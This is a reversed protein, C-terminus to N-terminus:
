WDRNTLERRLDKLLSADDAPISANTSKRQFIERREGNEDIWTASTIRCHGLGLPKGGGLRWDVSCAAVLLALERATLARCAIRLRGTLNAPLLDCTKNTKQGAPKPLGQEDYVGQVSYNWPAVDGSEGSTRYVKYGRLGTNEDNAVLDPDTQERYFAACGPHPPALPALTTARVKAKADRFVLNQPRVRAAFPGAPGLKRERWGPEISDALDPNPIQGFLDTVSDVKGDPNACDPLIQPHKDKVLDLLRIGRRGWRAWQISAVDSGQRPRGAGPNALELWVLDGKKLESHESHRHRGRYEVWLQAPLTIPDGETRLLGEKKGDPKIPRGSLRVRYRHEDDSEDVVSTGDGNAWLRQTAKGQRPRPLERGLADELTRATVLRTEGTLVKGARGPGGPEVVEALAPLTARVNGQTATPGLPLDRGQTLWAEEDVYGLTGGTLMALLSRLMGRVGTAPVIVDKGIALVPHTRHGDRVNSAQPSCTLLPSLTTLELDLVGSLREKEVEDISLPTPAKREPATVRFPIFTYPNHFEADLCDASAADVNDGAVPTPTRDMGGRSPRSDVVGGYKRWLDDAQRRLDSTADLKQRWEDFKAATEISVHGTELARRFNDLMPHGISKRNKDFNAM